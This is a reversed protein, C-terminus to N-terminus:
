RVPCCHGLRRYQAYMLGVSGITFFAIAVGLGILPGRTADSLSTTLTAKLDPMVDRVVGTLANRLEPVAGAAARQAAGGAAASVAQTLPDYWAGLAYM